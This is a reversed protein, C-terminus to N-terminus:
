ATGDRVEIASGAVIIRCAAKELLNQFYGFFREAADIGDLMEKGTEEDMEDLIEILEPKTKQCTVWAIRATVLHPNIFATWEENNPPKQIETSPEFDLSACFEPTIPKDGDKAAAVGAGGALLGAASLAGGALATRRSLKLTNKSIAM